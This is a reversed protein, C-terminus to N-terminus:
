CQADVTQPVSPESRLLVALRERVPQFRARVEDEDLRLEAFTYAHGSRYRKSRPGTELLVAALAPGVPLGVADLADRVTGNLDARLRDLPVYAHRGPAVSPLRVLLHDFYHELQSVLRERFPGEPDVGFAELGQEVSSLQSPVVELPDRLCCLFRADPFIEALGSVAPSLSPNKSLFRLETGHAFLHRQVISRYFALLRRRRAPPLETDFRGLQWLSEQEPLALALLFCGFAPCLALFDEEPERLRIAHVVDSARTLRRELRELMRGFPRGVRRDISALAWVVRRQTVSPALVCEWTSLTTTSPDRALVRHLFTTGSRPVGVVFLPEHVETRRYGRCWLEDLLLGLQNALQVVAFPPGLVLLAARRRWPRLIEDGGAALGRLYALLFRRWADLFLLLM